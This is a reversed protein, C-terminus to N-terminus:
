QRHADLGDVVVGLGAVGGEVGDRVFLEEPVAVIGDACSLGRGGSFGTPVM